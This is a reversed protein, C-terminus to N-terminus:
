LSHDSNLYVEDADPMLTMLPFYHNLCAGSFYTLQSQLPTKKLALGPLIRFGASALDDSGTFRVRIVMGATM